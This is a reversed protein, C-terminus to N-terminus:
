KESRSERATSVAESSRCYAAMVGGSGEDLEPHAVAMAVRAEATAFSRDDSSPATPPRVPSTATSWAAAVAAMPDTPASRCDASRDHAAHRRARRRAGPDAWTAGDRQTESGPM